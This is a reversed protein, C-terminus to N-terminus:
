EPEAVDAADDGRSDEGCLPMAARDGVDATIPADDGPRAPALTEGSGDTVTFTAGRSVNKPLTASTSTESRVSDGAFGVNLETAKLFPNTAFGRSKSRARNSRSAANSKVRDSAGGDRGSGSSRAGTGAPRSHAGGSIAVPDGRTRMLVGAPSGSRRRESDGPLRPTPSVVTDVFSAWSPTSM